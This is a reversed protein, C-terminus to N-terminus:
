QHMHDLSIISDLSWARAKEEFKSKTIKWTEEFLASDRYQNLYAESEWFSLTFFVRADRRDRLLELRHCGESSAILHKREDFMKQFAEVEELKFTMKVLRQIM